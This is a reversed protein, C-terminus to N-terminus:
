MYRDLAVKYFYAPSYRHAVTGSPAPLSRRVQLSHAHIHTLSLPLFPSLSCPLLPALSLAHTHTHSLCVSLALSLSLSPSPSLVLCECKCVLHACVNTSVGVCGSVHLHVCMCVSGVSVRMCAYVCRERGGERGREGKVNVCLYSGQVGIHNNRLDLDELSPHERVSPSTYVFMLHIFPRANLDIGLCTVLSLTVRLTVCLNM